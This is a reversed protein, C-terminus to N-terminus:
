SVRRDLKREHSSMLSHMLPIYFTISDCTDPNRSIPNRRNHRFHLREETMM